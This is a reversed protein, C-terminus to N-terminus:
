AADEGGAAAAAPRAAEDMLERFLAMMSPGPPAGHRERFYRVFLEEGGGDAEGGGAGASGCAASDGDAASPPQPYAIEVAVADPLEGRIRRVLGPEHEEAEVFVRFWAGALRRGEALVEDATGRLDALARGASLRQESVEAPMGPRVDVIRVSKRQGAEGFDLQLPSGAYAAEGSGALLRQPAHIHGLASYAPFRPLRAGAIGYAQGVHLARESGAGALLAGDVFVHAMLIVIDEGRLPECLGSIAAAAADAYTGVRRAEPTGFSDGAADAERIWPVAAVHATEGGATLRVVRGPTEHVVHAGLLETLRGVAGMKAPDDHNGALLVSQIGAGALERVTEYVLRDCEPASIPRDWVDGSVLVADARAERAVRVIEALAREQEGLRSRGRITRGVHWDSTHLLRM